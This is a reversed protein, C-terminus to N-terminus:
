VTRAGSPFVYLKNRYVFETGNEMMVTSGDGGQPEFIREVASEKKGAGEDCIMWYVILATSALLFGLTLRSHGRFLKKARRHYKSSPKPGDRKHNTHQHTPLFAAEEHNLDGRSTSADVAGRDIM